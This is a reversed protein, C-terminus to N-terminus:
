SAYRVCSNEEKTSGVGTHTQRCIPGPCENEDVEGRVGIYDWWILREWDGASLM